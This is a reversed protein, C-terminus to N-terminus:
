ILVNQVINIFDVSKDYYTKWINIEKLLGYKFGLPHEITPPIEPMKPKKPELASLVDCKTEYKDLDTLKELEKLGGNVGLFSLFENLRAVYKEEVKLRKITEIIDKDGDDLLSISIMSDPLEWDNVFKAFEDNIAIDSYQAYIKELKATNWHLPIVFNRSKAVMVNMYYSLAKDFVEPEADIIGYKKLVHIMGHTHYSQSDKMKFTVKVEPIPPVPFKSRTTENFYIIESCDKPRGILYRIGMHWSLNFVKIGFIYGYANPDFIYDYTNSVGLYKQSLFAYQYNRIIYNSGPIAAIIDVNIHERLLALFKEVAPSYVNLINMDIDDFNRVGLAWSIFGHKAVIYERDIFPLKNFNELIFNLKNFSSSFLMKRLIDFNSLELIEMSNKNLITKAIILTDYYTNTAYQDNVDGSYFEIKIERCSKSLADIKNFSINSYKKSNVAAHTFLLKAAINNKNAITKKYFVNPSSSFPKDFIMKIRVKNNAFLYFLLNYDTRYNTENIEVLLKDYYDFQWRDSHIPKIQRNIETIILKVNEYTFENISQVGILTQPDFDCCLFPYSYKTLNNSKTNNM